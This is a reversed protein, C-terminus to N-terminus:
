YNLGVFIELLEVAEDRMNGIPEIGEAFIEVQVIHGDVKTAAESRRGSGFALGDDGVEISSAESENRQAESALDALVDDAILGSGDTISVGAGSSADISTYTCGAAILINGSMALDVEYGILEAVADASPCNVDGVTVGDAVDDVFKWIVFVVLLGGVLLLAVFIAVAILCGKNSKPPTPNPHSQPPYWNGDSALWWGEAPPNQPTQTM